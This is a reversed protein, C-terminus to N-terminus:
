SGSGALGGGQGRAWLAGSRCGGHPGASWAHEPRATGLRQDIAFADQGAQAGIAIRHAGIVRAGLRHDDVGAAKQVAGLRFAKIGDALRQLFVALDDDGATQAGLRIVDAFVVRLDEGHGARVLVFLHEIGHVGGHRGRGIRENVQQGGAAHGQGRAVVAIQLNGFATVVLALEADDGVHAPPKLAARGMRHQALRFLQHFAAHAFQQHDRLVGRGVPDIDFM